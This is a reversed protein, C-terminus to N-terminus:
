SSTHSLQPLSGCKSVEASTPASHDDERVQKVKPSVAGTGMPYSASHVGSGTQVVYLATLDQAQRGGLGYGTAIGVARDQSM